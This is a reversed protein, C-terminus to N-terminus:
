ALENFEKGFELRCKNLNKVPTRTLTGPWEYKIAVPYLVKIYYRLWIVLSLDSRKNKSYNKIKRTIISTSLADM